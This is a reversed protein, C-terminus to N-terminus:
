LKCYTNQGREEQTPDEHMLSVEGPHTLGHNNGLVEQSVSKELTYSIFKLHLLFYHSLPGKEWRRCHIHRHVFRPTLNSHTHTNIPTADEGMSCANSSAASQLEWLNLPKQILLYDQPM